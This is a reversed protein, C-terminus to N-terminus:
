TILLNIRGFGKRTKYNALTDTVVLDFEFTGAVATGSLAGTGAVINLWGPLTFGPAAALSWAVTAGPRTNVVTHALGVSLAGAAQTLFKKQGFEETLTSTVIPNYARKVALAGKVIDNRTRARGFKGAVYYEAGQGIDLHVIHGPSAVKDNANDLQVNIAGKEFGARTDSGLPEGDANMHEKEVAERDISDSLYSYRLYATGNGPLNLIQVLPDFVGSRGDTFVPENQM